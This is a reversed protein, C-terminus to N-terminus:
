TAMCYYFGLTCYVDYKEITKDKRSKRKITKSLVEISTMTRLM